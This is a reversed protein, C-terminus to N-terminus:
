GFGANGQLGGSHYFLIKADRKIKGTKMLDLLGYLAKGTYVLDLPLNYKAEIEKVFGKLPDNVKAYGGFGYGDVVEFDNQYEAVAEKNNLILNLNANIMDRVGDAKKFVSMCVIKTQQPKSLILGAATTGTGVACVIFDYTQDLEKVIEMAGSIGKPGAGGEPIIYAAPYELKLQDHYNYNNRENYEDIGVRILQMGNERAQKLTPNNADAHGGRIIGISKMSCLEATKAVAAIHNS